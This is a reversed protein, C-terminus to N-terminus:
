GFPSLRRFSLPSLSTMLYKVELCCEVELKEGEPWLRRLQQALQLRAPQGDAVARLDPQEDPVFHM